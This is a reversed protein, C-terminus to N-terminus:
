ITVINNCCNLDFMYFIFLMPACELFDVDLILIILNNEMYAM